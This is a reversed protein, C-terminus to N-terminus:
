QQCSHASAGGLLTKGFTIGNSNSRYDHAGDYFYFGIKDETELGGLESFFEEFEQPCLFVQESLNFNSLNETLKEFSDGFTDFESFNDVAYAM